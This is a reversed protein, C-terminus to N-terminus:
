LSELPGHLNCVFPIFVQLKGVLIDSLISFPVAITVILSNIGHDRLGPIGVEKEIM